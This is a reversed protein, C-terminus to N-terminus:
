SDCGGIGIQFTISNSGGNTITFQDNSGSSVAYVDSQLVGVAFLDYIKITPTTGALLATWGHTAGPKLTLFDGATRTVVWIFLMRVGGDMAFTRGLADTLASLTFTQSASAALVIPVTADELHLNIGAPVGSNGNAYSASGSIQNNAPYGTLPTAGYAITEKVNYGITLGGTITQAM